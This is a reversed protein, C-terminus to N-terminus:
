LHDLNGQIRRKLSVQVPIDLPSLAQLTQAAPNGM